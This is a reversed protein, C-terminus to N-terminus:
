NAASRSLMIVLAVIGGIVVVAILATARVAVPAVLIVGVAVAAVVVVAIMRGRQEGQGLVGTLLLLAGGVLAAELPGVARLLVAALVLVGLM